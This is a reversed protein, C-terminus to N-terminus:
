ITIHEFATPPNPQFIGADRARVGLDTYNKAGLKTMANLRHLELTRPSIQLMEAIRKNRYGECMLQVVETERDTLETMTMPQSWGERFLRGHFEFYGRKKESVQQVQIPAIRDMNQLQM